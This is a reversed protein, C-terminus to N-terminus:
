LIDSLYKMLQKKTNGYKNQSVPVYTGDNLVFGSSTLNSVYNMNVIFSQHCRIFNNSLKVMVDDLKGYFEITRNLEHIIVIRKKSEIYKIKRITTRVVSGKSSYFMTNKRDNEIEEEVRELAAELKKEDIPKTLFYTPYTEFIDPSYQVHATIFIIKVGEYQEKIQRAIDIGSEVGLDIDIFLVDVDGNVVDVIYTYASFGTTFKVVKCEKGLKKKLMNSLKDVIFVDDDCLVINDM